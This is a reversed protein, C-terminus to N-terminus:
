VYGLSLRKRYLLAHYPLPLSACSTLNYEYFLYTSEKSKRPTKDIRGDMLGGKYQHICKDCSLLITEDSSTEDFVASLCDDTAAEAFGLSEVEVAPALCSTLEAM